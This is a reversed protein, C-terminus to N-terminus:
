SYNNYLEATDIFNVEASLATRIVNASEHLPLKVQQSGITLSGFCLRSLNLGNHGLLKYEM